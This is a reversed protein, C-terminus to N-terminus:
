NNTKSLIKESKKTYYKEVLIQLTEKDYNARPPNGNMLEVIEDMKRKLWRRLADPKNIQSDCKNIYPTLIQYLEYEPINKVPNVAEILSKIKITKFKLCYKTFDTIRIRLRYIVKICLELKSVKTHYMNLIKSFRDFEDNIYFEENEFNNSTNVQQISEIDTFSYRNRKNIEELCINRIITSFYTKLLSIGKYQNKIKESSLLLRENIIQIFEEKDSLIISGSNIFKSIIIEIICQYKVILAKPDSKLLTIELNNNTM